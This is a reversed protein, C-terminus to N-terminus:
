NHLLDIFINLFQLSYLFLFCSLLPFVVNGLLCSLLFCCLCKNYIESLIHILESSCKKVILENITDLGCAKYSDMTVISESRLSFGPFSVGSADLLVTFLKYVFCEAEVISSILVKFNLWSLPIRFLLGIIKQITSALKGTNVYILMKRNTINCCQM